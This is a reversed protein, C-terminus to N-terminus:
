LGPDYASTGSKGIEQAPKLSLNIVVRQLNPIPGGVRRRQDALVVASLGRVEEDAGAIVHVQEKAGVVATGTFAELDAILTLWSRM